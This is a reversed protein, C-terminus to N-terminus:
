WLNGIRAAERLRRYSGIAGHLQACIEEEMATADEKLLQSHLSQRPQAGSAHRTEERETQLNRRRPGENQPRLRHERRCDSLFRSFHLM